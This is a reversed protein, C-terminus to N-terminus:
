KEGKLKALEEELDKIKEKKMSARNELIVAAKTDIEKMFSKIDGDKTITACLESVFGTTITDDIIFVDYELKKTIFNRYVSFKLKIRNNNLEFLKNIVAQTIAFSEKTENIEFAEKYLLNLKKFDYEEFVSDLLNEDVHEDEWTLFCKLNALNIEQRKILCENILVIVTGVDAAYGIQETILQDRDDVPTKILNVFMEELLEYDFDYGFRENKM